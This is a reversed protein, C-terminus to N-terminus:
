FMVVLGNSNQNTSIVNIIRGKIMGVERLRRTLAKEGNIQLIVYSSRLDVSALTQM